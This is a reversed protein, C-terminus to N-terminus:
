TVAVIHLPTVDLQIVRCKREEVEATSRIGCNARVRDGEDERGELRMADDRNGGGLEVGHNRDRAWASKVHNPNSYKPEKM